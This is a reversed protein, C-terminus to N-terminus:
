RTLSAEQLAARQVRDYAEWGWRTRFLEEELSFGLRPSSSHASSPRSAAETLQIHLIPGAPSPESATVEVLQGHATFHNGADAPNAPVPVPSDAASPVTVPSSSLDPSGSSSARPRAPTRVQEQGSSVAAQPHPPASEPSPDSLLSLSHRPSPSPAQGDGHLDHSSAAPADGTPISAMATSARPKEVALPRSSPFSAPQPRLFLDWALMAAPILVLTAIAVPFSIRFTMLRIPLRIDPLSPCRRFRLEPPASPTM